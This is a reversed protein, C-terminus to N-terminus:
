QCRRSPAYRCSLRKRGFRIFSGFVVDHLEVFVENAIDDGLHQVLDARHWRAGARGSLWHSGDRASAVPNKVIGIRCDAGSASSELLQTFSRHGLSLLDDVDNAADRDFVAFFQTQHFHGFRFDAAGFM